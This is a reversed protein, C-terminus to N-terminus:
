ADLRLGLISGISSALEIWGHGAALTGDDELEWLAALVAQAFAWELIRQEDLALAQSLRHVRRDITARTAFLEPRDAPNRLAAGVEYASEGVVGKPDLATWGLREDLVVNGHHLDGHLLRTTSQSACLSLYMHHARRTLGEPVTRTSTALYREFSDAFSAVGPAFKPPISPSMRGIVGALIATADDDSVAGNALSTGPVLRELLLAGDTHEIVRVVGRGGFAAVVSGSRWEAGPMRIIKLAVPQQDRHGIAIISSTTQVVHDIAVGWAAAQAKLRAQPEDISM